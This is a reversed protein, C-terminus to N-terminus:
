HAFEGAFSPLRRLLKQEVDRDSETGPQHDDENLDDDADDGDLQMQKIQVLRLLHALRDFEQYRVRPHLDQGEGAQANGGADALLDNEATVELPLDCSPDAIKPESGKEGGRHKSQRM